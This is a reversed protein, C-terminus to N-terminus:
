KIQSGVFYSENQGKTRPGDKSSDFENEMLLVLKTIPRKWIQSPGGKKDAAPLRISREDNKADIEIVVIRTMSWQYQHYDDRLLVIDGVALNQIRNKSIQRTSEPSIGKEM